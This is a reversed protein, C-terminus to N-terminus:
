IVNYYSCNYFSNPLQKLMALTNFNYTLLEYDDGRNQSNVIHIPIFMICMTAICHQIPDNVVEHESYTDM